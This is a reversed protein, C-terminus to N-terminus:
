HERAGSRIEGIRSLRSRDALTHPELFSSVRSSLDELDERLKVSMTELDKQQTEMADFQPVRVAMSRVDMSMAEVERCLEIRLANCTTDRALREQEFLNNVTPNNSLDFIGSFEKCLDTRLRACAVDRARREQELLANLYKDDLESRQAIPDEMLSGLGEDIHTAQYSSVQSALADLKCHLNGLSMDRLQREEELLSDIYTRDGQTSLSEVISVLAELDNSMKDCISKREIREADLRAAMRRESAAIEVRILESAKAFLLRSSTTESSDQQSECVSSAATSANGDKRDQKAIHAYGSM